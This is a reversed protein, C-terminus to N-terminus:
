KNKYGNDEYSQLLMHGYYFYYQIMKLLFALISFYASFQMDLKFVIERM